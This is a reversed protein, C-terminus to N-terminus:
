FRIAEHELPSQKSDRNPCLGNQGSIQQLKVCCVVRFYQFLLRFYAVAAEKWRRESENNEIM